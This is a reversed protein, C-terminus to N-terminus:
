GSTLSNFIPPLFFFVCKNSVAISLTKEQQNQVIMDLCHINFFLFPFRVSCEFVFRFLHLNAQILLCM